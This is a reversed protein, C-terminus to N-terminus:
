GSGREVIGCVYVIRLQLLTVSSSLFIKSNSVFWCFSCIQFYIPFGVLLPFTELLIRWVYIQLKYKIPLCLMGVPKIVVKIGEFLFLFAPQKDNQKENDNNWILIDSDWILSISCEKCSNLNKNWLNKGLSIIFLRGPFWCWAIVQNEVILLHTNLWGNYM